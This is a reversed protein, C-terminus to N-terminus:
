YETSYLYHFQSVQMSNIDLSKEKLWKDMDELEHILKDLYKELSSLDNMTALADDDMFVNSTRKMMPLEMTARAHVGNTLFNTALITILILIIM